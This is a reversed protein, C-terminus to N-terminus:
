PQGPPFQPLNGFDVFIELNVTEASKVEFVGENKDYLGIPRWALLNSSFQQAVGSYFFPGPSVNEIRFSDASVDFALTNSIAMKNLQLFDATDAPVFRMAVFRLDHLSDPAPWRGTYSIVGAITGPSKEEPPSFGQDCASLLLTLVAALFGPIHRTRIKM